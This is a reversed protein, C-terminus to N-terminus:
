RNILMLSQKCLIYTATYYWYCSLRTERTGSVDMINFMNGRYQKPRPLLLITLTCYEELIYREQHLVTTMTYPLMICLSILQKLDALIVLIHTYTHTHTGFPYRFLCAAARSNNSTTEMLTEHMREFFCCGNCTHSILGSCGLCFDGSLVTQTVIAHSQMPYRHM